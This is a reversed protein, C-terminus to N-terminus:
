VYRFIIKNINITSISPQRLTPFFYRERLLSIHLAKRFQRLSIKKLISKFCYLNKKMDHNIDNILEQIIIIIHREM